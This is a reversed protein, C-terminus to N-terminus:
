RDRFVPGIFRINVEILQLSKTDAKFPEGPHQGQVLNLDYKIQFIDDFFSLNLSSVFDLPFSSEVSTDVMIIEVSKLCTKLRELPLYTNLQGRLM